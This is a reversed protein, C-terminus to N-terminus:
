CQRIPPARRIPGGLAQVSSQLSKVNNRTRTNARKMRTELSLLAKHLETLTSPGPNVKLHAQKALAKKVVPKRSSTKKVAIKKGIAKVPTKKKAPPQISKAQSMTKSSALPKTKPGLAKTAKKSNAANAKAKQEPTSKSMEGFGKLSLAHQVWRLRTSERESSLM